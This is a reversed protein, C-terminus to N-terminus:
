LGVANGYAEVFGVWGKHDSSISLKRYEPVIPFNPLYVSLGNAKLASPDATTRVVAAALNKLVAAAASAIPKNRQYDDRIAEVLGQLDVYEYNSFARARERNVMLRDIDQPLLATLLWGLADMANALADVKGLDVVSLTVGSRAGTLNVYVDVIQKAAVVPTIGQDFVALVQDYAWDSVGQCDQSAVLYRACHRVQYAIEVMAMLCAHFGLIDFPGDKGLAGTLAKEIEPNSLDDQEPADPGLSKVKEVFRMRADADATLRKTFAQLELADADTVLLEPLPSRGRFFYEHIGTGHGSLFVARKTAKRLGKGAVLFKTLEQPDGFNLNGLEGGVPVLAAGDLLLRQTGVARDIQVVLSVKSSVVREMQDLIDFATNVLDNDTAIAALVGWEPDASEDSLVRSSPSTTGGDSPKFTGQVCGTVRGPRVNLFPLFPDVPSVACLRYYHKFEESARASTVDIPDIPPTIRYIDTAPENGIVLELDGPGVFKMDKTPDPRGDLGTSRLFFFDDEIAVELLAERAIPLLMEQGGRGRFPVQIREVGNTILRGITFDVRALLQPVATLPTNFYAPNVDGSGPALKEINPIWVFSERDKSTPAPSRPDKFNVIELGPKKVNAELVLSEGGLVVHSQGALSKPVPLTPNIRQRTNTQEDWSTAPFRIYVTQDPVIARDAKFLLGTMRDGSTSPVWAIMGHCRIKLNIAM